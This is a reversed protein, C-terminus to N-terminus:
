EDINGRAGPDNTLDLSFYPFQRFGLQRQELAHAAAGPLRLMLVIIECEEPTFELESLTAAAVGTLALPHGCARELAIRNKALWAVFGSTLITTLVQLTQLVPLSCQMDYPSFGPPHECEPWVSERTPPAPSRLLNLWQDLNNGCDQWSQAMLFIERGGGYSGSGCALAAYLIASSHCQGVGACMAAHVSPDRPGPNALAVSLLELAQSQEKSPRRKKFLLYLYEFYSAKGLIDGYVDFGCCIAVQTSFPDEDSAIEQWMESNIKADTM